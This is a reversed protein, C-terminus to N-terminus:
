HGRIVEFISIALVIVKHIDFSLKYVLCDLFQYPM